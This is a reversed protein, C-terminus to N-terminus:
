KREKLAQNIQKESFTLGKLALLVLDIAEHITVDDKEKREIVVKTYDDEITVIM